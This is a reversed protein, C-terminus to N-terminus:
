LRRPASAAAVARSTATEIDAHMTARIPTSDLFIRPQLMVPAAAAPAVSLPKGAQGPVYSRGTIIAGIRREIRIADEESMKPTITFEKNSSIYDLKAQVDPPIILKATTSIQTPTQLLQDVYARAATENGLIQTMTAVLGERQTNYDTIIQDTSQGSAVADEIRIRTLEDLAEAQARVAADNARGKETTLDLTEGNKEISESLDDIAAEYNSTAERASIFDKNLITFKDIMDDFQKNAHEIWEAYDAYVDTAEKAADTNEETAKTAQPIKTIVPDISGEAIEGWRFPDLKGWKDLFEFTKDIATPMKELIKNIGGVLGKEDDLLHEGVSTGIAKINDNMTSLKGNLTEAQAATAGSFMDGLADDLKEIEKRGLEGNAALTRAEDASVGLVNGLAEYIPVGREALQLLEESQIKGKALMQGYIIALDGIPAGTAAAVEGLNRLTDVLDDSSVGFSALTKAAAQLEPFEFPSAAGFAKIEGLMAAVDGGDRVVFQMQLSASEMDAAMKSAALGAAGLGAVIGAPGGFRTLMGAGALNLGGMSGSAGDIDRKAKDLGTTDVKLKVPQDDLKKIASQLEAIRRQAPRTDAGVAVDKAVQDRLRAIEDRARKIAEDHMKVTIEPTVKMSDIRDLSKATEAAEREASNLGDTLPKLGASVQKSDATVKLVLDDAM